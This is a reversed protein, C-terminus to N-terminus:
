KSVRLAMVHYKMGNLPDVFPGGHLITFGCKQYLAIAAVSTEYVDLFLSHFLDNPNAQVICAAENILHEVISRGHGQGLMQPHVALLPIYVHSMGGTLISYDNCINLTGFGVINKAPDTYISFRGDQYKMRQPIDDKLIQSVFPDAFPWQTIAQFIPDSIDIPTADLPIKAM